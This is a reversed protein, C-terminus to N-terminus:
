LVLIYLLFLGTDSHPLPTMPHYHDLCQTEPPQRREKPRRLLLKWPKSLTLDDERNTNNPHMELEIAERNLRDIYGTRASLIKSDQLKVTHEQNINHEAVAPKETQALRIHRSHEKIRIQVSRGTQGTYIKGCECPISYLWYQIYQIQGYRLPLSVFNNGIVFSEV